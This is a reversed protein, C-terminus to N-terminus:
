SKTATIEVDGNQLLTRKVHYGQAKLKREAVRRSYDQFVKDKMPKRFDMSDAHLIYTGDKQREFGMENYSSGGLKQFAAQSIIIHASKAGAKDMGKLKRASDLVTVGEVGFYEQLCDVLDQENQVLAEVKMEAFHSMIEEQTFSAQSM